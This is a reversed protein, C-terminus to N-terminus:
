KSLQFDIKDGESIGYKDCFGGLTEVVYKAPAGSPLSAESLPKTRRYIKVIENASNAYIIDLSILTNKMWFSQEEERGMLFLMGQNEKMDRRYMLGQAQESPNNALEIAISKVQEGSKSIFSLNGESSFSPGLSEPNTQVPRNKNNNFLPVVNIGVIAVIIIGAIAIRSWSIKQKQPSAKGKAPSVKKGSKSQKKGPKKKSM